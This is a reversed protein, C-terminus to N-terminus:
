LTFDVGRTDPQAFKDTYEPNPDQHMWVQDLLFLQDLIIKADIM